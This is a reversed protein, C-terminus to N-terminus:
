VYMATLGKETKKREQGGPKTSGLPNGSSSEVMEFSSLSDISNRQQANLVEPSASAASLSPPTALTHQAMFARFMAVLEGVQAKM